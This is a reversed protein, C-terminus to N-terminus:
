VRPSSLGVKTPTGDHAYAKGSAIRPLRPASWDRGPRARLCQGSPRPDAASRQRGRYRKSFCLRKPVIASTRSRARPRTPTVAQQRNRPFCWCSNDAVPRFCNSASCRWPRRALRCQQRVAKLVQAFSFLRRGSAISICRRTWCLGAPDVFSAPGSANQHMRTPSYRM